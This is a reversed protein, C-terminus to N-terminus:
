WGFTTLTSTTPTRPCWTLARRQPRGPPPLLCPAPCDAPTFCAPCRDLWCCRLVASHTVALAAAAAVACPVPVGVGVGSSASLLLLPPWGRGEGRGGCPPGGGAKGAILPALLDEYGYQKSSISGKIRQAVAAKDRVDLTEPSCLPLLLRYCTHTPKRHPLVNLLCATYAALCQAPGHMDPMCCGQPEWCLALLLVLTACRLVCPLERRGIAVPHLAARGM